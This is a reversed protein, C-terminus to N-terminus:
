SVGGVLEAEEHLVEQWLATDGQALARRKKAYIRLLQPIAELFPDRVVEPPEEFAAVLEREDSSLLIDPRERRLRDLDM